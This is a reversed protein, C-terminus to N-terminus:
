LFCRQDLNKTAPTLERLTRMPLMSSGSFVIDSTDAVVFDVTRRGLIVLWHEPTFTQHNIVSDYATSRILLYTLIYSHL